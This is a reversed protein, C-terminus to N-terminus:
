KPGGPLGRGLMNEVASRLQDLEERIKQLELIVIYSEGLLSAIDTGTAGAIVALTTFSPTKKTEYGELAEVPIGTKASLEELSLRARERVAKLRIPLDGPM